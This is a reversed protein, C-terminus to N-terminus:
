WTKTTSGLKEKLRKMIADKGNLKFVYNCPVELGGRSLKSRQRKGTIKCTITGGHVIFFKALRSIDKPIHGVTIKDKKVAVCHKDGYKEGDTEPETTLLEGVVPEWYVRYVHFGRVICPYVFKM